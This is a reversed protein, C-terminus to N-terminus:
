LDVNALAPPIEVGVLLNSWYEDLPEYVKSSFQVASAFNPYVKSGEFIYSDPRKIGYAYLQGTNFDRLVSTIEINM